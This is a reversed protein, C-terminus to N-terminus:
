GNINTINEAPIWSNYEESHNLWKVFYQTKGRVKRQKIIKEIRYLKPKVKQIEEPYFRKPLLQGSETKLRYYPKNKGKMTNYVTFVEDTWQPYYGRDHPGLAYKRRVKDEIKHIPKRQSRLYERLNVYGYLNFFVRDKNHDNVQNPSMKISRHYSNNYADIFSALKDIYRRNGKMTFYRFM